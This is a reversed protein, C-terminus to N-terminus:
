GPRRLAKFFAPEWSRVAILLTVHKRRALPLRADASHQEAYERVLQEVQRLLAVRAESSVRVSIMRMVEGPGGFAHQFFDGAQSKVYRMIPGDPIWAFTRAVRLRIRNNEHLELFGIRELRLLLKVCQTEDLDFLQVMEDVRLQQLACVAALLLAPESALEEEQQPTLQNILRSERPAGRALEAMEVQVLECISDLRALTCNRTAFIRKVTAQSIKLAKALDAYTMGRAKLHMKLGDFVFASSVASV